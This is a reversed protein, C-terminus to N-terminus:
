SMSSSDCIKILQEPAQTHRCCAQSTLFEHSHASGTLLESAQHGYTQLPECILAMFKPLIMPQLELM